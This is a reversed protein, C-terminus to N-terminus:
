ILLVPKLRPENGIAAAPSRPIPHFLETFPINDKRKCNIHFGVIVM